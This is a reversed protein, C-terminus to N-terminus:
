IESLTINSDLRNIKLSTAVYAKRTNM